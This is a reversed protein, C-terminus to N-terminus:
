WIDGTQRRQCTTYLRVIEAQTLSNSPTRFGTLQGYVKVELVELSLVLLKQVWVRM